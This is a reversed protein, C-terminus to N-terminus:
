DITELLNAYQEVYTQCKSMHSSAADLSDIDMYRLGNELDSCSAHFETYHLTFFRHVERYKVPPPSRLQRLYRMLGQTANMLLKRHM